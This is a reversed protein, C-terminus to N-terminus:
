LQEGAELSNRFRCYALYLGNLCLHPVISDIFDCNEAIMKSFGGTVVVQPWQGLEEAYREVVERLAGIAGYYIGNQIATVTNIGYTGTPGEPKVLPLATTHEKLSLASTNLGPLIVGGLFIGKDNVLDITLATGFDAVAVASEVVQYAAFATVLRDTGMTEPNEVAVKMELPFERGILLIKQDLSDQVAQEIIELAPPNVSSVVVPVTRAGLPQPGCLERFGALINALRQSDTEQVATQETRQLQQQAFVGMSITSNGIDIAILDM